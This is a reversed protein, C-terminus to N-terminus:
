YKNFFSLFCLIKLLFLILFGIVWDPSGSGIEVDKMKKKKKAMRTDNM